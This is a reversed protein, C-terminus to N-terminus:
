FDENFNHEEVNTIKVEIAGKPEYGDNAPLNKVYEFLEGSDHYFASGTINLITKYNGSYALLFVKNNERINALTEVMHGDSFIISDTEVKCVEVFISHAQGSLDSTSLVLIGQSEILESQEETLM